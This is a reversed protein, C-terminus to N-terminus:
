GYMEAADRVAAISRRPQPQARASAQALREVNKALDFRRNFRWEYAALYRATHRADCSRCTGTIASKVNGLGINLWTFNDDDLRGDGTTIAIHDLGAEALGKFCDYADSVVRSTSAISAEGYAKLAAKTFGDVPRLHM